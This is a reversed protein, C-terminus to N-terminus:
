VTCLFSIDIGLACASMQTQNQNLLEMSFLKGSSKNKFVFNTKKQSLECKGGSLMKRENYGELSVFRVLSLIKEFRRDHKGLKFRQFERDRRDATRTSHELGALVWLVRLLPSMGQPYHHGSQATGDQSSCNWNQLSSMEAPQHAAVQMSNAM